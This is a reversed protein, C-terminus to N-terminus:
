TFLEREGSRVPIWLLSRHSSRMGERFSLFELKVSDGHMEPLMFPSGM